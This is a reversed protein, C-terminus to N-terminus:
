KWFVLTKDYINHTYINNFDLHKQFRKLTCQCWVNHNEGVDVYKKLGTM